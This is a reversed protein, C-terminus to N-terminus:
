KGSSEEEPRQQGHRWRRGGGSENGHGQEPRVNEPSGVGEARRGYRRRSQEQVSRINEACLGFLRKQDELSLHHRVLILHGAVRRELLDHAEFVREFRQDLNDDSISPNEFALVLNKRAEDLGSRLRALDEQFLPDHERIAADQEEDLGLWAAVPSSDAPVAPESTQSRTLLAGTLGGAFLVAGTLAIKFVLWM